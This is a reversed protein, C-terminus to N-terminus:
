KLIKKSVSNNSSYVKVLYIGQPATLLSVKLTNAKDTTKTILCGQMDYVAVRSILNDSQVIVSEQHRDYTISVGEVNMSMLEIGSPTVDPSFTILRFNEYLYETPWNTSWFSIGTTSFSIKDIDDLSYIAPTDSQRTFVYINDGDDPSTAFGSVSMMCLLLILLLKTRQTM